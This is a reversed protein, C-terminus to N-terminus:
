EQNRRELGAPFRRAIGHRVPQRAVHRDDDDEDSARNPIEPSSREVEPPMAHVDRHREFLQWRVSSPRPRTVSGDSAEVEGRNAWIAVYARSGRRRSMTPAFLTNRPMGQSSAVDYRLPARSPGEAMRCADRRTRGYLM